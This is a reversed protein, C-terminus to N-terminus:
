RLRSPKDFELSAIDKYDLDDAGLAAKCYAKVQKALTYLSNSDEYLLGDLNNRTSDVVANANIVASNRALLNTLKSDLTVTQIETENPNYTSQAQLLEVLKSFNDARSDYSMQSASNNSASEDEPTAPNDPTAESARRGQLKRKISRANEVLDTPLGLSEIFATVRSALSAVDAFEAERLNIVNDEAALKELYTTRLARANALAANLATVGIGVNPSNYRAGLATVKAILAEFNAIFKAETTESM